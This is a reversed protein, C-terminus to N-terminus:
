PLHCDDVNDAYRDAAKEFALVRDKFQSALDEVALSALAKAEAVSVQAAYTARCQSADRSDKAAQYSDHAVLGLALVALLGTLAAFAWAIRTWASRSPKPVVQVIPLPESIPDLPHPSTDSDTM